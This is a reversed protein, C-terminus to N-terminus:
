DPILGDGTFHEGDVAEAFTLDAPPFLVDSEVLDDGALPSGQARILDLLTTYRETFAAEDGSEVAAVTANDLENVQDLVGDDLRFQGEGMIRIIM